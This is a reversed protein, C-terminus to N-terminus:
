INNNVKLTYPDEITGTGGKIKADNTIYFTPRVVNSDSGGSSSHSASGYPVVYVSGNAVDKKSTQSWEWLGLFLWNSDTTSRYDNDIELKQFSGIPNNYKDKINGDNKYNFVGNSLKKSWNRPSAGYVYDSIYLLGIKESDTKQNIKSKEGVENDYIIKPNTGILNAFTANDNIWIWRHDLILSKYLQNMNELYVNNLHVKNLLSTPWDAIKNKNGYEQYYFQEVDNLLGKYRHTFADQIEKKIAENDNRLKISGFYSGDTLPNAKAIDTPTTKGIGLIDGNAYDAKVVKIGDSGFTGIIRFLNNYGDENPNDSCTTGFCIYNNVKEYSGTYRYSNDGAELDGATEGRATDNKGDHYILNSAGYVSNDHLEKICEALLEGEECVDSLDNAIKEAQIIIRGKFTKGTNLEQDTNLNKFTVTINWEDTKKHDEEDTVQIEFNEAIPYIGERLETIDYSDNDTSLTAKTLDSMDKSFGDPGEVTLFLEPIPNYGNTVGKYDINNGLTKDYENIFVLDDLSGDPDTYSSYEFDNATIELYVNYHATAINTSNNAVLTASVNTSGERSPDDEKFNQQNALITIDDGKNFTLNDVTSSTANIDFSEGNGTVAQFYAYTAGAILVLLTVVAIVLYIIGKRKNKDENTM